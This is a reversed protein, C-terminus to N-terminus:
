FQGSRVRRVRLDAGLRGSEVWFSRWFRELGSLGSGGCVSIEGWGVPNAGFHPWFRELGNLGSGGCM